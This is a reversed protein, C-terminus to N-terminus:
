WLQSSAANGNMRMGQLSSHQLVQKSRREHLQQQPPAQAVHVGRPRRLPVPLPVMECGGHLHRLLRERAIAADHQRVEVLPRVLSTLYVLHPM